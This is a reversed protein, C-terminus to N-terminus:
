RAPATEDLEGSAGADRPEGHDQDLTQSIVRELTADDLPAEGEAQRAQQIKSRVFALLSERSVGHQQALDTISPGAIPAGSSAYATASQIDVLAIAKPRPLCDRLDAAMSRIKLKRTHHVVSVM